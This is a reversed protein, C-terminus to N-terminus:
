KPRGGLSGTRIKGLQGKGKTLTPRLPYIRRSKCKFRMAAQSGCGVQRCPVTFPLSFFGNM